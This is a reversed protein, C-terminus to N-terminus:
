DNSIKKRFAKVGLSIASIFNSGNNVIRYSKDRIYDLVDIVENSKEVLRNVVTEVKYFETRSKDSIFKVDEIVDNFNSIAPILQVKIETVDSEIKNASAAIKKVSLIMYVSLVTLAVFLMIEAIALITNFVEMINNGGAEIKTTPQSM